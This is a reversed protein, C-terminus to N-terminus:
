EFSSIEPVIQAPPDSPVMMGGEIVTMTSAGMAESGTPLRNEPMM